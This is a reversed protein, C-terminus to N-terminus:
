KEHWYLRGNFAVSATISTTPSACRIYDIIYYDGMGAPGNVSFPTSVEVGGSEEDYYVLNKNMPHWLNYINFRPQGNRGTVRFTKDFKLGVKQTDVTATLIDTWDVNAAGKFLNSLIFTGLGTGASNSIPRVWGNPATEQALPNNVTAVNIFDTGKYTFCIRRWIWEEGFQTNFRVNEKYGRMFCSESTRYNDLDPGSGNPTKDQATPVYAFLYDTGGNLTINTAATPPSAPATLNSFMMRADTKKKSTLNLIRRRSMAPRRRRTFTRRRIPRSRYPARRTTRRRAIRRRRFRSYAM